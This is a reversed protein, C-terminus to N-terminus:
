AVSRAGAHELCHEEIGESAAMTVYHLQKQVYLQAGALSDAIRGSVYGDGYLNSAPYRGHRLQERIATSIQEREAAVAVVHEDTERGKQRNGILVVPTGFFSADRVFSSSNGVACSANALIRLYDEPSVNILTRLWTPAYRERFTRIAKNVYDSGADINPWLLVTEAEIRRLSELLEDMQAREGGYETTTPHFLVVLFPQTVDIFPGSGAGNIIDSCLTRDLERAIDSSPCGVGLITDPREGMRILYDASRKTSPFHFHAFKSIAHRASEDISGSVEGGQSHVISINM